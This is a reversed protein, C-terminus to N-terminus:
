VEGGNRATGTTCSAPPTEFESAACPWRLWCAYESIVDLLAALAPALFGGPGGTMALGAVDLIDGLIDQGTANPGGSAAAASSGLNWDGAGEPSLVASLTCSAVAGSRWLAGDGCCTGNATAALAGRHTGAESTCDAPAALADRRMAAELADGFTTRRRLTPSEASDVM